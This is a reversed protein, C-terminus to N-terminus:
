DIRKFRWRNPKSGDKLAIEALLEGGEISYLIRQPYDHAPNEFIIETPNVTTAAFCAENQGKPLACFTIKGDAEQIRTQEWWGIAAGQGSRGAGMMLGARPPTWWEESWTGGPSEMVWGGALWAPMAAQPQQGFSAAAGALLTATLVLQRGRM